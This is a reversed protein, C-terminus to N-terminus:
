YWVKMFNRLSTLLVLLLLLLVHKSLACVDPLGTYQSPVPRMACYLNLAELQLTIDADGQTVKRADDKQIAGLKHDAKLRFM